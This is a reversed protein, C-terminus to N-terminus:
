NKCLFKCIMRSRINYFTKVCSYGKITDIMHNTEQIKANNNMIVSYTIGLIYACKEKLTKVVNKNIKYTTDYYICDYTIKCDLFNDYTIRPANAGYIIKALLQQYNYSLQRAVDYKDYAYVTIDRPDRAHYETLWLTSRLDCDLVATSGFSLNAFFENRADRKSVGGLLRAILRKRFSAFKKAVPEVTFHEGDFEEYPIHEYNAILGHSDARCPYGGYRITAVRECERVLTLFKKVSVSFNMQKIIIFKILRLFYLFNLKKRCKFYM